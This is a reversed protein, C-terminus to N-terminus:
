QTAAIIVGYPAVEFAPSAPAVASPSALLVRKLKPWSEFGTIEVKQETGSMNLVILATVGNNARRAFALVERNGSELSVYAGNRFAPHYQRLGLLDKYWSFVSAKDRSEAAVNVKAANSPVPLWPKGNTFGANPGSHWQMPTREGDRGDPHPRTRTTGFKDLESKPMTTMGLEDGYYMQATGRPTLVLAAVLKVIQENNKGDGFTDWPRPRDHNSLLFVPTGGNLQTEAADIQKKFEQADLTKIDGFLFNMPLQVEDHNKGYLKALETINPTLSEALLVPDGRFENLTKRLGRLADHVEPLGANYTQLFVDRSGEKPPHPDEPFSPNEFLYPTADLRFGSAGHKLWFRAVDYMAKQVEPNRWNLDPQQPLFFHYYWQKTKADWTWTYGGFGSTWHTPPNSPGGGDRWIYWDRKPNTRSSRSELFWPHQDSTHNVVFDVLVRIGLTNAV